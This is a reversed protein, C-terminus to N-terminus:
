VCKLSNNLGKVVFQVINDITTFKSNDLYEDEFECDFKHELEVVINIFKLLTIASFWDFLKIPIKLSSPVRDFFSPM